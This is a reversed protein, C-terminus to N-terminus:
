RAIGIDTPPPGGGGSAVAIELPSRNAFSSRRTITRRAVGLVLPLRM